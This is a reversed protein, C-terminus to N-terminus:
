KARLWLSGDRSRHLRPVVTYRDVQACFTVDSGLGIGELARGHQAERLAALARGRYSQYLRRAALAADTPQLARGMAALCEVFAGAAFADELGFRRGRDEGACLIRIDLRNRAALRLGEAAAAGLNLLSGALVARSAAARALARTGNTTALVARRGSLDLKDFEAPSNGYDFGRPPLGGVEGCLLLSRHGQGARRAEAPTRVVLAAALGRAFM